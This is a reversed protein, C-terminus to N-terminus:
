KSTGKKKSPTQASRAKYAGIEDKLERVENEAVKARVILERNNSELTDKESAWREKDKKVDNQVTRCKRQWEDVKAKLRKMESTTEEVRARSDEEIKKSADIVRRLDEVQSQLMKAEKEALTKEHVASATRDELEKFRLQLAQSEQEVGMLVRIRDQSEGNSSRLREAEERLKHNDITLGDIEEQQEDLLKSMKQIDALASEAKADKDKREKLKKTLKDKADELRERDKSFKEQERESERKLREVEKESKKLAAELRRVESELRCKEELLVKTASAAAAAAATPSSVAEGQGKEGSKGAGEAQLTGVLVELSAKERSLTDSLEQATDLDSRLSELEKRAALLKKESSELRNTLRDNEAQVHKLKLAIADTDDGESRAGGSAVAPGEAEATTAVESAATTAQDLLSQLREVEKEATDRVENAETLQEQLIAVEKRLPSFAAEMSRVKSMTAEHRMKEDELEETAERASKMAQECHTQAQDVAVVMRDREVFLYARDQVLHDKERALADRERRVTRLDRELARVRREADSLRTKLVDPDNIEDNDDTPTDQGGEVTEVVAEPLIDDELVAAGPWAAVQKRRLVYALVDRDLVSAVLYEQWGDDGKLRLAIANPNDAKLRVRRLSDYGIVEKRSKDSQITFSNEECIIKLREAVNEASSVDFSCSPDEIADRISACVDDDLPLPGVEAFAPQAQDDTLPNCQVCIQCGVDDISPQYFGGHAGVIEVFRGGSTARFWKLEILGEDQIGGVMQTGSKAWILQTHPNGGELKFDQLIAVVREKEEESVVPASDEQADKKPMKIHTKLFSTMKETKEVANQKQKRHFEQLKTPTMKTKLSSLSMMRHKDDADGSPQPDPDSTGPTFKSKFMSFRTTM